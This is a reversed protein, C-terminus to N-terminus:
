LWMERRPLQFGPYGHMSLYFLDRVCQGQMNRFYALDGKTMKSLLERAIYEPVSELDKVGRRLKNDKRQKKLHKQVVSRVLQLLENDARM